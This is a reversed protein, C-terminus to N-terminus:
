TQRSARQMLDGIGRPAFALGLAYAPLAIQVWYYNEPRAFLAIM